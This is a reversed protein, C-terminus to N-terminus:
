DSRLGGEASWQGFGRDNIHTRAGRVHRRGQEVGKRNLSPQDDGQRRIHADAAHQQDFSFRNGPEGCSKKVPLM